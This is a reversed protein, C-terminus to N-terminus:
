ANSKPKKGCWLRLTRQTILPLHIFTSRWSDSSGFYGNTKQGKWYTEWLFPIQPTQVDRISETIVVVTAECHSIAKNPGRIFVPWLTGRAATAPITGTDGYM